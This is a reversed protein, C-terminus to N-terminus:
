SGVKVGLQALWSKLITLDTDRKLLESYLAKYMQESNDFHRDLEELWEAIYINRNSENRGPTNKGVSKKMIIDFRQDIVSCLPVLVSEFGAYSIEINQHFCYAPIDLRFTGLDDTYTRISHDELKILCGPLPEATSGNIIRGNMEVTQARLTISSFALWLIVPHKM